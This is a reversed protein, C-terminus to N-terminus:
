NDVKALSSSFIEAFFRNMAAWSRKDAEANYAVGTTPDNGASVDTFSHVAGGYFVMQWDVDSRRMEQQFALVQEDPVLPDDAGHLVLVRGQINRADRPNPTDLNGHFSVVGATPAGSRALELVVGGGFCYGIAALRDRSTLPHQQLFRLGANARDRMLQRDSRYITAQAAAEESTQPRIGKGYIDAAFAVYGLEALQRARKKEKEGLGKWAHVVLVGPRQATVEDDYALYGELITEGQRYEVVQTRVEALSPASGLLWFLPVLTLTSSVKPNITDTKRRRKNILRNNGALQM